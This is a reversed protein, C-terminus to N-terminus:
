LQLVIGKVMLALWVGGRCHVVMDSLQLVMVCLLMVVMGGSVVVVWACVWGVMATLM